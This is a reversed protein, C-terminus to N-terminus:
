RERRRGAEHGTAVTPLGELFQPSRVLALLLEKFKFGSDRFATLAARIADRDAPTEVRGFAFRFAQKVICEQCVRSEALVRGVQAPETFTSNALGAIEGHHEIPVELTKESRGSGIEIIEADRWRGIADFNELGFGIPDMLRHCSACTPNDTHAQMRQRRPLPKEATAEPVETNVGPPPNPVQQCLLQERIFIGRATPSTEVPGATSALFSAQGLLGSRRM